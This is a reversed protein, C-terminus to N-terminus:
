RTHGDSRTAAFIDVDLPLGDDLAEGFAALEAGLRCYRDFWLLAAVRPAVVLDRLECEPCRRAIVIDGDLGALDAPYILMSLCRPCRVLSKEAGMDLDRPM